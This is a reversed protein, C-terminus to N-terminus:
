DICTLVQMKAAAAQQQASSADQARQRLERRLLARQREGEAEAAQCRQRLEGCERRVQKVWCASALPSTHRSDDSSASMVAM